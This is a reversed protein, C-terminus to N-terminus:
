DGQEHAGERMKGGGAAQGRGELAQLRSTLRRIEKEAADLRKGARHLRASLEGDVSTVNYLAGVNRCFNRTCDDGIFRWLLGDAERAALRCLADFCSDSLKQCLWPQAQRYSSTTQVKEPSLGLHALVRRLTAEPRERLEQYDVSLYAVSASDLLLRSSDLHSIYERVGHLLRTFSM